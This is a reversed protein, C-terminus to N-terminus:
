KKHLFLSYKDRLYLTLRESGRKNLHNPDGFYDNTYNYFEEDIIFEGYDAKLHKIYSLYDSVYSESVAKFTDENVPMTEYIAMIGEKKCLDLLERMYFDFLASLTFKEQELEFGLGGSSEKTGYGTFGLDRDMEEFKAINSGRRSQIKGARIDPLYYYFFNLRYLCAKIYGFLIPKNGAVIYDNLKRSKSLVEMEERLTLLKFKVTREWFFSNKEFHFPSFSIFVTGPKKHIELYDKLIYYSEVPSSGGVCLSRADESLMSPIIGAMTRSDGLILIDSDGRDLGGNIIEKQYQWMPYELNMYNMSFYEVYFYFPLQLLIIFIISNRVLKKM